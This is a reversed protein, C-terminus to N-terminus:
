RARRGLFAAGALAASLLLISAPVPVPAAAQALDFADVIEATATTRYVDDDLGDDDLTLLLPTGAGLFATSVLANDDDDGLLVQRFDRQFRGDDHEIDVGFSVSEGPNFDQFTFVLIETNIGDVGRTRTDGVVLDMRGGAPGRMALVGDFNFQPDGISISFRDLTARDSVNRLTFLPVAVTGPQRGLSGDITLEFGITAAPTAAVPLLTALGALASGILAALRM